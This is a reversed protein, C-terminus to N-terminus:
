RAALFEGIRDLASALTKRDAAFSLRLHGPASFATGPVLAVGAKTLIQECLTVDDSIGLADIADSVDPFAYFSGDGPRCRIGPFENLREVVFRQREEFEERM